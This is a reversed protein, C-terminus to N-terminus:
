RIELISYVYRIANGTLRAAEVNLRNMEDRIKIATSKEAPPFVTKTYGNFTDTLIVKFM